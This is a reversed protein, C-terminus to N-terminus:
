QVNQKIFLLLVSCFPTVCELVEGGRLGTDTVHICMYNSGHDFWVNNCSHLIVHFM